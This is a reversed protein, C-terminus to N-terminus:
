RFNFRVKYHCQPVKYVKCNFGNDEQTVVSLAPQVQLDLLELKTHIGDAYFEIGIQDLEKQFIPEIVNAALADTYSFFILLM